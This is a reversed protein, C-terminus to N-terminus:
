VKVLYNFSFTIDGGNPAIDLPVTDARTTVAAILVSTDPDGSNRYVVLGTVHTAGGINPFVVDAVLVRGANITTVSAIVHPVALLGAVESLHTQTDDFVYDPGVLALAITDADFDIDGALLASRGASYWLSM